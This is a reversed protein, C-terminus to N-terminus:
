KSGSSLSLCSSRYAWCHRVFWFVVGHCSAAIYVKMIFTSATWFMVCHCQLVVVLLRLLSERLVSELFLLLVRQQLSGERPDLWLRAVSDYGVVFLSESSSDCIFGCGVLRHRCSLLLAVLTRPCCCSCSSRSRLHFSGLLAFGVAPMLAFGVAPPLAFGVAPLLAFDVAPLLAFGVAPLAFWLVVVSVLRLVLLLVMVSASTWCSCYSSFSSSPDRSDWGDVEILFGQLVLVCIM